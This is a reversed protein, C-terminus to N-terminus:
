GNKDGDLLANKLFNYSKNKLKNLELEYNNYIVDKLYDFNKDYNPKILRDELRLQKILTLVRDDDGYMGGNKLIWFKKRYLSSFITGHFSTTIVLKANHILNLYVDPSQNYAMKFGNKWECKIYYNKSSWTIVKMKYKNAVKKVFKDLKRDFTPSYYFIYEGDINADSEIKKYEDVELLLTPDLVVEADRNTLEKIWKKGNFERASLYNFNNIFTKFKEINDSYKSINKAGFSPAYAIKNKENEEFPLFYIDNYDSITINWIQDSGAIFEDYKEYINNLNYNDNLDENSTILYKQSFEEYNNKHRQLTKLHPILLPAYIINKLIKKINKKKSFVSYLDRQGNSSFNILESDFGIKNVVREIAYSELMSGCNLSRHFTIIGIKKKM